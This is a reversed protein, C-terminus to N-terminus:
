NTTTSIENELEKAAHLKLLLDGYRNSNKLHAIEATLRQLESPILSEDISTSKEAVVILPPADTQVESEVLLSKSCAREAQTETQVSAHCVRHANSSSSSSNSSSSAGKKAGLPSRLPSPGFHLSAANKMDGTYKIRSHAKVKELRRLLRLLETDNDRRYAWGDLSKALEKAMDKADTYEVVDIIYGLYDLGQRFRASTKLSQLCRVAFAMITKLAELSLTLWDDGSQLGSDLLHILEDVAPAYCDNECICDSFTAIRKSLDSDRTEQFRFPSSPRRQPHLHQALLPQQSPSSM